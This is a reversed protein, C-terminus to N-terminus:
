AGRRGPIPWSTSPASGSRIRGGRTLPCLRSISTLPPDDPPRRSRSGPRPRGPRGAACGRRGRLSARGRGPSAPYVIVDPASDLWRAAAIADAVDDESQLRLDEIVAASPQARVLLERSDFPAALRELTRRWGALFAEDHADDSRRFPSAVVHGADSPEERDVRQPWSDAPRRRFAGRREREISSSSALGVRGRRNSPSTRIPVSEFEHTCM